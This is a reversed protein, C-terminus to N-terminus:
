WCCRSTDDVLIHTPSYGLLHLQSQVLEEQAGKGKGHMPLQAHAGDYMLPAIHWLAADVLDIAAGVNACALINVTEIM